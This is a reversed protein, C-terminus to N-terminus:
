KCVIMMSRNHTSGGFVGYQTGSVAVGQEDSKQIVDYGNEKCIEGAKEYCLSWDLASGSCGIAYGQRGDPLYVAKQSACSALAVTLALLASKGKM